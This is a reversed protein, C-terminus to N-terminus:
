HESIPPPGVMVRVGLAYYRNAPPPCNRFAARAHIAAGHWSGGRVVWRGDATPDERGDAAKYPYLRYLSGTWGWTNGM